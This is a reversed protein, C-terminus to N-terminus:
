KLFQKCTTFDEGGFEYFYGNKNKNKFGLSGFVLNGGNKSIEIVANQFCMGYRPQYNGFFQISAKHLSSGIEELTCEKGECSNMVKTFQKIFVSQIMPSAPLYKKDKPNCNRIKCIQIYETFDPDIIKGDREVWFHGDTLPFSMM